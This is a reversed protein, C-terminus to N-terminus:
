GIRRAVADGAESTALSGGLDRTCEGARVAGAVAAEIARAEEEYGLHRAMLAASLIEGVPNVIGKGAIDPASGHVPEFLGRGTDPNVNASPAVGMGGVLQASLDSLIDGFLNGTVIVDFQSPDRVLQMAAADVYLHRAAVEPHRSRAEKWVDQWLGGAFRMANAKDVMCVETRAHGFALEIIREIGTRTNVDEQIAVEGATGRRFRGGVGAYLGETNERVILLDVARRPGERLPSLREDLLKAPRLNAYLDLEFRLRLLIGAIYPGEEIRPDGVAGFLIADARSLQEFVDDPLIEGTRLYREAGIDFEELQLALGAARLVKLAEPVVEQGAGDGPVVAVRNRTTREATGAAAQRVAFFDLRSLRAPPRAARQRRDRAGVPAAEWLIHPHSPGVVVRDDEELTM